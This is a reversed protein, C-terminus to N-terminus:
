EVECVTVPPFSVNLSLCDFFRLAFFQPAVSALFFRPLFCWLDCTM